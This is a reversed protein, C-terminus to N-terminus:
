NYLNSQTHTHKHTHEAARPSFLVLLSEKSFHCLGHSQLKQSMQAKDWFPSNCIWRGLSLANRLIWVNVYTYLVGAHESTHHFPVQHAESDMRM